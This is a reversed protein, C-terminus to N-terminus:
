LREYILYKLKLVMLIYDNLLGNYDDLKSDVNQM